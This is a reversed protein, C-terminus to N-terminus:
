YADMLGEVPLTCRKKSSEFALEILKITNYAQWPTTKLPAGNAITQYLYEYFLGFNGQQSPVYEKVIAGNIETHLLGYFEESEIGLTESPMEGAKLKAEQPDDGYKIFSGKTGHIIYHPGHERVLMGARLTAQLFGYDLVVTFADDAKAHPRQLRVDATIFKPIGFLCLCQDILHPGLDYLIGSGPEPKERWANPKAEARYRFYNGEFTHVEGLLQQQLIQQITRYDAVYRRNQYVTLLTGTQKSLAALEMAETSRITFPKDVVVAKGALLCQKAYPYHTENPTGIVILDANTQLLEEFSRVIQANPFLAKSEERHRELVAVVEYHPSVKLFPAHFVKSAIGFGAIGVQITKNM